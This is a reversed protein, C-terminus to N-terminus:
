ETKLLVWPIEFHHGFFLLASDSRISLIFSMSLFYLFYVTYIGYFAMNKNCWNEGNFYGIEM